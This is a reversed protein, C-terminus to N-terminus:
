VCGVHPGFFTFYPLKLGTHLFTGVSALTLLLEAIGHGEDGAATIIM